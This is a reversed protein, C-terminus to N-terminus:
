NNLPQLPPYPFAPPLPPFAGLSALLAGCHPLSKPVLVVAAAGALPGLAGVWGSM